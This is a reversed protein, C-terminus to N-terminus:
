EHTGSKSVSKSYKQETIRSNAGFWYQYQEIAQIATQDAVKKLNAGACHMM